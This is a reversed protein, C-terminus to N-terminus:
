RSMKIKKIYKNQLLILALSTNKNKVTAFIVQKRVYFGGHAQFSFWPCVHCLVPCLMVYCIYCLLHNLILYSVYRLMRLLVARSIVHTVYVLIHSTIYAANPLLYTVCYRIKVNRLM